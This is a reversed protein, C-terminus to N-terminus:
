GFESRVSKAEEVAQDLSLAIALGLGAFHQREQAGVGVLVQERRELSGDAEAGIGEVSDFADQGRLRLRFAGQVGQRFVFSSMERIPEPVIRHRLPRGGVVQVEHPFRGMMARWRLGVLGFGVVGFGVLGPAGFGAGDGGSMRSRMRASKAVRLTRKRASCNSATRARAWRSPRDCWCNRCRSMASKARSHRSRLSGRRMRSARKRSRLGKLAKSQSNLREAMSRTWISSSALPAKTWRRSLRTKTPWLPTPLDNKIWAM